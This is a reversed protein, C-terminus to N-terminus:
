SWIWVEAFCNYRAVNEAVWSRGYDVPVLCEIIRSEDFAARMQRLDIARGLVQVAEVLGAIFVKHEHDIAVISPDLKTRLRQDVAEEVDITSRFLPNSGFHTAIISGDGLLYHEATLFSAPGPTHILLDAM